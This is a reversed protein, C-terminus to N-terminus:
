PPSFRSVFVRLKDSLMTTNRTSSLQQSVCLAPKRQAVFNPKTARKEDFECSTMCCIQEQQAALQPINYRM